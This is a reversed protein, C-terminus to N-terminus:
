ATLVVCFYSWEALLVLKQWDWIPNEKGKDKQDRIYGTKAFLMSGAESAVQDSVASNAM